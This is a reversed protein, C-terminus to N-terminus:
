IDVGYGNKDIKFQWQSCSLFDNLNVKEKLQIFIGL